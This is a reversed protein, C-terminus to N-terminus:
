EESVLLSLNIRPSEDDDDIVTLFSDAKVGLDALKKPLNDDLEPDYLTGAESNVTFEDYGFSKKLVNDVLDGLSARQSDVILRGAKVGCVACDPNPPRLMEATIVKTGSRDLFVNKAQSADGRLIKFGQLVCLGAVMANTTAIAPIINGAMQKIDFRSKTSIGFIIARLNACAAVFNLADEDDKDFSLVSGPSTEQLGHLRSSLRKTSDCFVAFSEAETWAKQDQLSPSSIPLTSSAKTLEDIDSARPKQRSKWMDDM